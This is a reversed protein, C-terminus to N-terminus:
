TVAIGRRGEHLGERPPHVRRLARRLEGPAGGHEAAIRLVGTGYVDQDALGGADAAVDIEHTSQMEIPADSPVHAGVRIRVGCKGHALRSPDLAGCLGCVHDQVPRHAAVDERATPDGETRARVHMAVHVIPQDLGCEPRLNKAPEYRHGLPGLAATGRPDRALLRAWLASGKALAGCCAFGGEHRDFHAGSGAIAGCCALNRNRCPFDRGCAFGGRDLWDLRGPGRFRGSGAAKVRRAGAGVSLRMSVCSSGEGPSVSTRGGGSTKVSAASRLTASRMWPSPLGRSISRTNTCPPPQEPRCYPNSNSSASCSPSIQM